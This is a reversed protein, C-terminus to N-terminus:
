SGKEIIILDGDDTKRIGAQDLIASDILKGNADVLINEDILAINEGSLRGGAAGSIFGADPVMITSRILRTLGSPLEDWFRATQITTLGDHLHSFNYDVVMEAPCGAPPSCCFGFAEVFNHTWAHGPATWNDRVPIEGFHLSGSSNRVNSVNNIEQSLLTTWSPVTGANVFELFRREDIPSFSDYTFQYLSGAQLNRADNYQTEQLEELAKIGFGLPEQNDELKSSWAYSRFKNAGQVSGEITTRWYASASDMGSLFSEPNNGQAPSGTALYYKRERVKITESLQTESPVMAEVELEISAIGLSGDNDRGDFILHFEQGFQNWYPVGAYSPTIPVELLFAGNNIITRQNTTFDGPVDNGFATISSKALVRPVRRTIFPPPGVRNDSDIVGLTVIPTQWKIRARGAFAQEDEGAMFTINVSTIKVPVGFVMDINVLETQGNSFVNEPNLEPIPTAPLGGKLSADGPDFATNPFMRLSSDIERLDAALRTSPFFVAIEGDEVATFEVGTAFRKIFVKGNAVGIYNDALHERAAFAGDQGDSSPSLGSHPLGHPVRSWTYKMDVRSDFVPDLKTTIPLDELSIEALIGRIYYLCQCCPDETTDRQIDISVPVEIINSAYLSFQNATVAFEDLHVFRSPLNPPDGKLTEDDIDLICQCTSSLGGNDTPTGDECPIEEDDGGENIQRSTDYIGNQLVSFEKAAYDISVQRPPGDGLQLTGFETQNGDEDYTPPTFTVVYDGEDPRLQVELRRNDLFYDPSSFQFGAVPSTGAQGRLITQEQERWAWMTTIEQGHSAGLNSSGGPTGLLADPLFSPFFPSFPYEIAAGPLNVILEKHRQRIPDGTEVIEEITGLPTSTNILRYQQPELNESWLEVSGGLDEREPFLPMWRFGPSRGNSGGLYDGRKTTVEFTLKGRGFNGFPPEPWGRALFWFLDVEGRKRGYGRFNFTSGEKLVRNGYTFASTCIRLSPHTDLIKAVMRDPGRYAEDSKPPLSSYEGAAAANAEEDSLLAPSGVRAGTGASSQAASNAAGASTLGPASTELNILETSDTNLPGLTTQKYRPRECSIYPYWMPGHKLAWQSGPPQSILDGPEFNPLSQGASPYFAKGGNDFVVREQEGDENEGVEALLIVEFERRLPGLTFFEHTGCNPKHICEQDGLTGVGIRNSLSLEERDVTAKLPVKLEGGDDGISLYLDPLLAYLTCTASWSYFIEVNVAAISNYMLLMRSYKRGIPRGDTDELVWVYEQQEQTIPTTVSSDVIDGTSEQTVFIREGGATLLGAGDFEITHEFNRLPDNYFNESVVEVGDEETLEPLTPNDQDETVQKVTEARLFTFTITIDDRTPDARGFKDVASPGPGLIVYNAPLGVGDANRFFQVLEKPELSIGATQGSTGSEETTPFQSALAASEEASMGAAIAASEVEESTVPNDNSTNDEGGPIFTANEIGWQAITNGTGGGNVLINELPQVAGSTDPLPLVRHANTDRIICMLSGCDDIPYWDEEELAVTKRYQVVHYTTNVIFTSADSETVFPVASDLIPTGGVLDSTTSLTADTRLGRNKVRWGYYGQNFRVSEQGAIQTPRAKIISKQTIDGVTAGLKSIGLTDQITFDEGSFSDQQIVSHLFRYDVSVNSVLKDEDNILLFVYILNTKNHVLDIQQISEWTGDAASSTISFGLPAKSINVRDEVQLQDFIAKLTSAPTNAFNPAGSLGTPLSDNYNQDGYFELYRNRDRLATDNVIYIVSSPSATGFLSIKNSDANWSRYVFPIDSPPHTISLSTVSPITSEDVLTPFQPPQDLSLTDSGPQIRASSKGIKFDSYDQVKIKDMEITQYSEDSLDVNNPSNNGEASPFLLKQRYLLFDEIDPTTNVDVYGKFAWIFPVAFREEWESEPNTFQTWDDSFFRIEQIQEANVNQGVEMKADTAFEWEPGSYFACETRVGNCPLSGDEPFNWQRASNNEQVFFECKSIAGFGSYLMQVTAIVLLRVTNRAQIEESSGAVADAADELVTAMSDLNDAYDKTATEVSARDTAAQITTNLSELTTALTDIQTKAAATIAKNTQATLLKAGASAILEPSNTKGANVAFNTIRALEIAAANDLSIAHNKADPILVQSSSAVSKSQQVSTGDSNFAYIIGEGDRQLGTRPELYFSPQAKWGAVVVTGIPFFTGVEDPFVTNDKVLIGKINTLNGNVDIIQSSVPGAIISTIFFEDPLGDGLSWRCCKQVKAQINRLLLHYPLQDADVRNAVNAPIALTNPSKLEADTLGKNVEKLVDLPPSHSIALRAGGFRYKTCTLCKGEGNCDGANFCSIDDVPFVSNAICNGSNTQGVVTALDTQKDTTSLTSWFICVPVSNGNFKGGSLFKVM